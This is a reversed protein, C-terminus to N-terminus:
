INHALTAKLKEVTTEELRFSLSQKDALTIKRIAVFPRDNKYATAIITATEGVPLRPKEFDGHTFSYTDDAKQYGPLYMKQKDFVMSVYVLKFDAQNEVSTVIEVEKTRPDEFLRDINAWGLKKVSFIYGTNRDETFSNHGKVPTESYTVTVSTFLTDKKYFHVKYAGIQFVTDREIILGEGSWAIASISDELAEPITNPNIFGDVSYMINSKQERVVPPEEAPEQRKKKEPEIAVPDVWRIGASDSIGRFVSMGTRVSDAPVAFGIAKGSAIQLAENGSRADIYVMGGSELPQGEFTTTLNALVMDCATLAEKFTIQVPGTVPKGASDAFTNKRIKIIVGKASTLVTDTQPYLTFTQVPLHGTTYVKEFLDAPNSKDTRCSHLLLLTPLVLFAITKVSPM